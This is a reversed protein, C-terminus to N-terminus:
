EGTAEGGMLHQTRRRIRGEGSWAVVNRQEAPLRKKTGAQLQAVADRRATTLSPRARVLGGRRPAFRRSNLRRPAVSSCATLRDVARLPGFQKSLEHVEIASPMGSPLGATAPIATM